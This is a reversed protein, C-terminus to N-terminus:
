FANLCMTSIPFPFVRCSHVSNFHLVVNAPTTGSQFFIVPYWM